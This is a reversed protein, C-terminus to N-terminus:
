ILASWDGRPTAENAVVDAGFVGLEGGEFCEGSGGLVVGVGGQYVAVNVGRGGVGPVGGAVELVGFGLCVRWDKRVESRQRLSEACHADGVECVERELQGPGVGDTSSLEEDCSGVAVAGFHHGGDEVDGVGCHLREAYWVDCVTEAELGHWCCDGGFRRGAAPVREAQTGTVAVQEVEQQCCGPVAGRVISADLLVCFVQELLAFVFRLLKAQVVLVQVEVISRRPLIRDTPVACRVLRPQLSDALLVIRFPHELVL